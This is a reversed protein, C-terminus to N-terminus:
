FRDRVKEELAGLNDLLSGFDGGIMYEMVFYLFKESQFTCFGKVVFDNNV